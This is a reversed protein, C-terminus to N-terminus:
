SRGRTDYVVRCLKSLLMEFISKNHYLPDAEVLSQYAILVIAVAEEMLFIILVIVFFSLLMCKSEHIAGCCGMFTMLMLFAGVGILAYSINTM